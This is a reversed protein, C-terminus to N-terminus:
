YLGHKFHFKVQLVYRQRIQATDYVIFEDYLLASDAVGSPMGKGCPVRVSPEGPLAAGGNPDPTTKGKGWTSDFGKKKCQKDAEYQASLREYPTGLAVESLLMVGTPAGSNAFCYNASEAFARPFRLRAPLSSLM